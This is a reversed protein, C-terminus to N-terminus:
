VRVAISLVVHKGRVKLPSGHTRYAEGLLAWSCSFPRQLLHLLESITSPKSSRGSTEAQLGQHCTYLWFFRRSPASRSVPPLSILCPQSASRM